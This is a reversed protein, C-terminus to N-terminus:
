RTASTRGHPARRRLHQRRREVGCHLRIGDGRQHHRQPRQPNGLVPGDGRLHRSTRDRRAAADPRLDAHRTGGGRRLRHLRPGPLGQHRALCQPERGRDAAPRRRVPSQGPRQPRHLLHRRLPGVLAWETGTVPDTWGWMDNVEVGRNGGIQGVPLFSVIDVYDCDFADATGDECAVDGGTIADLGAVESAVKVGRTWGGDRREIIVATGMGFDDEPLGVVGASAGLALASGMQDRRALGDVAFSNLAGWGGDADTSAVYYRGELVGAMPAGIWIDRGDIVISSGFGTLGGEYARYRGDPWGSTRVFRRAVYGYVAGTYRDQEPAGVLLRGGVWRWPWGSGPARRRAKPNWRRWKWGTAM